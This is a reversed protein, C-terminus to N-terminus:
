EAAVYIADGNVNDVVSGYVFIGDDGAVSYMLYFDGYGDLEPWLKSSSVSFQEQAMAAVSVTKSGLMTGDADYAMLTLDVADMNPNFWGINTRYGMGTDANENSLFLVTGTTMAYDMGMGKVYQGFTGLGADTQDNYIRMSGVLMQDSTAIVAGKTGAQDFTTNVIDNVVLQEDAAITVTATATPAANGDPGELYYDLMVTATDDGMNLMRADTVFNTDALGTVNAAVPFVVMYDEEPETSGMLPGSLTDTGNSVEVDWAGPDAAIEDAADSDVSGVASGGVFNAELDISTFDSVLSASSAMPDLGSVLINYSITNGSITIVAVGTGADGSLNATFGAATALAPALVVCMATLIARKM